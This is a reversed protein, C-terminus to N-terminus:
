APAQMLRNTFAALDVEDRWAEVLVRVDGTTETATRTCDPVNTDAPPPCQNVFFPKLGMSPHDTHDPMPEIEDPVSFVSIVHSQGLEEPPHSGLGDYSGMPTGVFVRLSCEMTPACGKIEGWTAGVVVKTTGLPIRDEPLQNPARQDLGATALSNAPQRWGAHLKDYITIVGPQPFRHMDLMSWHDLPPTANWAPDREAVVRTAIPGMLIPPDPDGFDAGTWFGLSAYSDPRFSPDWESPVLPYRWTHVPVDSEEGNAEESLDREATYLFSIYSGSKLAQTADAEIRLAASGEPILAGDPLTILACGGMFYQYFVAEGAIAGPYCDGAEVTGEFLVRELEGEEWPDIADGLTPFLGMTGNQAADGDIPHGDGTHDAPDPEDDVCGAVLVTAFLIALVRRV